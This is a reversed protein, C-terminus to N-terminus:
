QYNNELLPLCTPASRIDTRKYRTYPRIDFETEPGAPYVFFHRSFPRVMSMICVVILQRVHIAYCKIGM